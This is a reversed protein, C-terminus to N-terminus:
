VEGEPRDWRNTEGLRIDYWRDLFSRYARFPSQVVIRDHYKFNSPEVNPIPNLGDMFQKWEAHLSANDAERVAAMHWGGPILDFRKEIAWMLKTEIQYFQPIRSKIPRPIDGIYAEAADHMLGSLMTGTGCGEAKLIDHVICSHQAVTIPQSAHGGWRVTNSLGWAIDAISIDQPQPDFVDVMRGQFTRIM